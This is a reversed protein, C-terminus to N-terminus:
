TTEYDKNEATEKLIAEMQTRSINPHQSRVFEWFRDPWTEYAEHPHATAFAEFAWLEPDQSM